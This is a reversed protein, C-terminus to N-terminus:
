KKKGSKGVTKSPVAEKTPVETKGAKKSKDKLSQKVEEEDQDEEEWGEDNDDDVEDDDDKGIKM